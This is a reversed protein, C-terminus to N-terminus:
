GRGRLALLGMAQGAVDDDDAAKRHAPAVALATSVGRPADDEEAAPAAAALKDAQAKRAPRRDTAASASELMAAFREGLPSSATAQVAQRAHPEEADLIALSQISHPTVGILLRQGEVNVVLLESRMGVAARRVITLEADAAKGPRARKRAYLFAGGVVVLGAVIKWGVGAHQPEPALELPKSPRLALPTGTPAASPTAGQPDSDAWAPVTLAIAGLALATAAVRLRFFARKV